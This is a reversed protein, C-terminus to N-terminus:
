VTTTMMRNSNPRATRRTEDLHTRAVHSNRWVWDCITHLHTHTHSHSLGCKPNHHTHTHEYIHRHMNYWFTPKRSYRKPYGISPVRYTKPNPHDRTTRPITKWTLSGGVVSYVFAASGMMSPISYQLFCPVHIGFAAVFQSIPHGEIRNEATLCTTPLIYIRLAYFIIIVTWIDDDFRLWVFSRSTSKELMVCWWLGSFSECRSALQFVVLGIIGTWTKESNRNHEM